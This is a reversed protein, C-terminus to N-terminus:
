HTFLIGCFLHKSPVQLHARIPLLTKTSKILPRLMFGDQTLTFGWGLSLTRIFLLHGHSSLPLSWLAAGTFWPVASVASLWSFCSEGESGGSTALGALVKM